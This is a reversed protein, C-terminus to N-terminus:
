LVAGGSDGKVVVASRMEGEGEREHGCCEEGGGGVGEGKEM